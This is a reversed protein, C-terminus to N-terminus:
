HVQGHGRAISDVPRAQGGEIGGESASERSVSQPCAGEHGFRPRGHWPCAGVAFSRFVLQVRIRSLCQGASSSGSERIRLGPADSSQGWARPM